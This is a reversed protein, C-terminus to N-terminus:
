SLPAQDPQDALVNDGDDATTQDKRESSSDEISFDDNGGGGTIQDHAGGGALDDDGEGGLLTDVGANGSLFDNGDGGELLDNGSQGILRDNGARGFLRDKGTGGDLKDDGSSSYLDDKGNGGYLTVNKNLVGNTEDVAVKDKGGQASVRIGNNIDALAFSQVVGNVKVDLMTSDTASISLIIEDKGSSGTVALVGDTDFAASLLRRNELTEVACFIQRKM